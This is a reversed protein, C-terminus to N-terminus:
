RMLDLPIQIASDKMKIKMDAFVKAQGKADGTAVMEMFPWVSAASNAVMGSARM